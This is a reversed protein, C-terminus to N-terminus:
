LRQYRSKAIESAMNATTSLTEKKRSQIKALIGCPPIKIQALMLPWLVSPAPDSSSLLIGLQHEANGPQLNLSESM